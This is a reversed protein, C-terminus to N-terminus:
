EFKEQVTWGSNIAGIISTESADVAWVQPDFIQGCFHM